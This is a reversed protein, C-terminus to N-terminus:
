IRIKGNMFAQVCEYHWNTKTNTDFKILECGPADPETHSNYFVHRTGKVHETLSCFLKIYSKGGFFVVSNAAYDPLMRLDRYPDGNYRRKYLEGNNSFTIDYNPTLFDAKILGWGASLIYLRELGYREELHAYVPNQYLKWAPLLGLPNNGPTNKYLDNYRLLKERWAEGTDCNGDPHDYTYQGNQPACDPRAVFLVKRGDPHRLYGANSRKSGACQIVVIESGSM